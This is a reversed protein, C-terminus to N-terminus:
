KEINKTMEIVLTKIEMVEDGKNLIFLNINAFM